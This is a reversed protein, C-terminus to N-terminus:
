LHDGIAHRRGSQGRGGARFQPTVGLDPVTPVLVYRAGATQLTGVM